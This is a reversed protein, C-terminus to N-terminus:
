KLISADGTIVPPNIAGQGNQEMIAQGAPSLVFNVFRVAGEKNMPMKDGHQVVTIGYIM